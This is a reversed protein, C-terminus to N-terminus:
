FRLGASIGVRYGINKFWENPPLENTFDFIYGIATKSNRLGEAKLIFDEFLIGMSGEVFFYRLFHQRYGIQFANQLFSVKGSLSASPRFNESQSSEVIGYVNAAFPLDGTMKAYEIFLDGQSDLPLNGRLVFGSMRGRSDEFLEPLKETRVSGLRFGISIYEVPQILLEITPVELEM